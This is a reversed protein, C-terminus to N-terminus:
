NESYTKAILHKVDFATRDQRPGYKVKSALPSIITRTPRFLLNARVGFSNEGKKRM